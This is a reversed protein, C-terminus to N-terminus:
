NFTIGGVENVTMSESEVSTTLTINLPTALEGRASFLSDTFGAITVTTPIVFDESFTPAACTGTYLRVNQGNLCAGWLVGNRGDMSYSQAKRITGVIKDMTLELNRQLLFSSMLPSVAAALIAILAVVLLVELLTIGAQNGKKKM